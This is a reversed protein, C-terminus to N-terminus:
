GCDKVWISNVRLSNLWKGKVRLSKVWLSKVLICKVSLSGVIYEEGVSKEGESEEGM